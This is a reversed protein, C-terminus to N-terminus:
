RVKSPSRMAYSDTFPAARSAPDAAGDYARFCNMHQTSVSLLVYAYMYEGIYPEVGKVKLEPTM